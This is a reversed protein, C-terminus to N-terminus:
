EKSPTLTENSTSRDRARTGIAGWLDHPSQKALGSPGRASSEASSEKTFVVSGDEQLVHAGGRQAGLEKVSKRFSDNTETTEADPLKVGTKQFKPPVPSLLWLVVLVLITASLLALVPM